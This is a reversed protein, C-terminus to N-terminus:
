SSGSVVRTDMRRALSLMVDVTCTTRPYGSGWRHRALGNIWIWHARSSRAIGSRLPSSQDVAGFRTQPLSRGNVASDRASSRSRSWKGRIQSKDNDVRGVEGRLTLQPRALSDTPACVWQIQGVSRSGRCSVACRGLEAEPESKPLSIVM